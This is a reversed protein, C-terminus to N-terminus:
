SGAFDQVTTSSARDLCEDYTDYTSIEEASLPKMAFISLGKMVNALTLTMEGECWDRKAIIKLLAATIPAKVDVYTKKNELVRRLERQKDVTEMGKEGLRCWIQPILREEGEKLGCFRLLHTVGSKSMSLKRHWTDRLLEDEETNATCGGQGGAARTAM